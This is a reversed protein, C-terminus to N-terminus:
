RRRWRRWLQRLTWGRRPEQQLGRGDVAPLGAGNDTREITWGASDQADELQQEESDEPVAQGAQENAGGGQDPAPPLLGGMGLEDMGADSQDDANDIDEDTINSWMGYTAGSQRLEKLATKQSILGSQFVSVIAASGQQILNAREQESTDRVPNFDFDLDDPVMGWVSICLVPLLKELVPRLDSEQDQRIKDYYNTLDSEGTSNLGGPSRGFLRTVPIESAGSIDLMFSEYIDNLGSFTYQHTELADEKDMVNMGMNSLLFNQMAMVQYLRKQIEPQTAALMQGLDAMKYTRINAQFILQAINESTTNRKNLETYVHELESMGWYNEATREIYPLDRGMFRIVRSHHVRVGFALDTESMSFTYYEPTGFDPDGLDQVLGSDPYVGSWRDAIILGKYQDPLITDLDIPEDLMDEQGEIVIIGAAGGFLRGWRLGELLQRKLHTKRVLTEFQGIQEPTLQSKLDFWNKLMDEPITDIVRRAIWDNRYLSNLLPYNQTLRTLPYEAAELLNTQGVGLRAFPNTFSDLTMTGNPKVETPNRAVPEVRQGKARRASRRSM